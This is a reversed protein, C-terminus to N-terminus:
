GRITYSSLHDGLLNLYPNSLTGYKYYWLGSLRVRYYARCKVDLWFKAHAATDSVVGTNM